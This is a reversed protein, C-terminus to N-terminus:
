SGKILTNIFCGGGSSSPTPAASGDTNNVTITCTDTGFARNMDYAKVQIVLESTAHVNPTTVTPAASTSNNIVATPGSIQIWQYHSIGLGEPDTASVVSLSVDASEEADADDGAQVLPPANDPEIGIVMVQDEMVAWDVGGGDFDDDDTIDFYADYSGHWGFNIHVKDTVGEEYGDILVEHWGIPSGMSFIIPRPPDAELETKIISLWQASTYDSVNKRNNSDDLAKFRFFTDLIEDAWLSSGSGESSNPCGFDTEAAVAVHYMLKSVAEKQIQTTGPAELDSPMNAWDYAEPNTLDASLNTTVTEGEWTYTHSGQGGLSHPPWQWYNLLQSWATAVCGSLTHGGTCGDDPMEINYPAYQGWITTILPAVMAGKTIGGPEDAAAGILNRTITQDADGVGLRDFYTWANGVRRSPTIRGTTDPSAAKRIQSDVAAAKANLRSLIWAELANPNQARTIDFASRTSYFPIPSLNDYASVIVYGTPHIRFHYASRGGELTIIEPDGITPSASGNWDGFVAWHHRIQGQAVRRASKLTVPGGWAASVTSLVFLGLFLSKLLVM